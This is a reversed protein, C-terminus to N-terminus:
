MAVSSLNMYNATLTDKVRLDEFVTYIKGSEKKSLMNECFANVELKLGTSNITVRSRIYGLKKM